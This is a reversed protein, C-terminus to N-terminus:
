GYLAQGRSGYLQPTLPLGAKKMRGSIYTQIEGATVKGDKNRDGKMSGKYGAAKLRETTYIGMMGSSKSSYSLENYASSLLLTFRKRDSARLPRIGKLYFAQSFCCDLIVIWKGRYSALRRGLAKYSYYRYPYTGTLELGLVESLEYTDDESAAVGHGSYYLINLDSSRSGSFTRSLVQNVTKRSSRSSCHSVTVKPRGYGAVTGNRFLNGVAIADRRFDSDGSICLVRVRRQSGGCTGAAHIQRPAMWGLLLLLILMYFINRVGRGCHRRRERNIIM